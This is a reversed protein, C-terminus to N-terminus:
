FAGKCSTPPNKQPKPKGTPTIFKQIRVFSEYFKREIHKQLRRPLTNWAAQLFFTKPFDQITVPDFFGKYSLKDKQYEVQHLNKETLHVEIQTISEKVESVEFYELMGEPLFYAIFSKSTGSSMGLSFIIEAVGCTKASVRL